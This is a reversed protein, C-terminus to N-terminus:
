RSIQQQIRNNSRNNNNHDNPYNNNDRNNPYNNIDNNTTNRRDNFKRKHDNTGKRAVPTESPGTNRNTNNTNEMTAAQAELAAAVSDAILQRIAAPTMAPAESTTTNKPPMRNAYSDLNGVFGYDSRFGRTPRATPASSCDRVEFRPGFAIYFRKQPPLTVEPVNAPLPLPHSTSPSEFRLWIMVARYGLPAGADTPSTPLPSSPIQPLPSSYSTLPSLPPTPIALLRDVEIKS